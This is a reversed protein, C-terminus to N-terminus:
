IPTLKWISKTFLRKPAFKEITKIFSIMFSPMFNYFFSPVLLIKEVREVKFGQQRAIETFNEDSYTYMKGGLREAFLSTWARPSWVITDLIVCGDKKVLRRFEKLLKSIDAYHFFFRLSIIASFTDTSYATNFADQRSLLINQYKNKSYALMSPSYDAGCLSKFGMTQMTPILRGTGVPIDLTMGQRDVDGLFKEVAQVEQEHVYRGGRNKFRFEDYNDVVDDASYYKRKYESDKM